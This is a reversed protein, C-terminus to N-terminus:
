FRHIYDVGGVLNDRWGLAPANRIYHACLDVANHSDLRFRNGLTWRWEDARMANFSWRWEFGAWPRYAGNHLPMAATFRSRVFDRRPRGTTYFNSQFREYLALDVRGATYNGQVYGFYRYRVKWDGDPEHFPIVAASVGARLYKNFFYTGQLASSFRRLQQPEDYFRVGETALLEWKRGLPFQLKVNLWLAKHVQAGAKPAALLFM